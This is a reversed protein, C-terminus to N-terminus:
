IEEKVPGGRNENGATKWGFINQTLNSSVAESESLWRNTDYNLFGYTDSNYRISDTNWHGSGRDGFGFYLSPASPNSRTLPGVYIYDITFTCKQTGTISVQAKTLLEETNCVTPNLPITFIRYTGDAYASFPYNTTGYVTDGDGKLAITMTDNEANAGSNKVVKMRLRLFDTEGPDFALSSSTGATLSVLRDNGNDTLVIAGSTTDKNCSETTWTNIDAYNICNKGYVPYTYQLKAVDNNNFDFFLHNVQEAGPNVHQSVRDLLHEPGIFIYDITFEAGTTAHNPGQINYITPHIWQLNTKSEIWHKKWYPADLPFTITHFGSGIYSEDLNAKGCINGMSYELGIGLTENPVVTGNEIKFRIQCYDNRTPTYSIPYNYVGDENGFTGAHIYYYNKDHDEPINDDNLQDEFYAYGNNPDNELGKVISIGGSKSAQVWTNGSDLNRYNAGYISSSYRFQDATTNDFGIFLYNGYVDDEMGMKPGVYIYDITIAANVDAGKINQFHFGINRILHSQLFKADAPIPITVTQYKGMMAPDLEVANMTDDYHYTAAATNPAQYWAIFQILPTKGSLISCHEMKFRMQVYLDDSAYMALGSAPGSAAPWSGNDNGTTAIYAGDTATTSVPFTAVGATNNISVTGSRTAWHSRDFDFHNRYSPNDRYRREYGEGDFDVFFAEAPIYERAIDTLYVTGNLRQYDQNPDAAATGDTVEEWPKAQKAPDTDSDVQTMTFINSDPAFDTEYYMVHAPTFTIEAVVYSYAGVGNESCYFDHLEVVAYVRETQTLFQTPQYSLATADMTFTGQNGNFTTVEPASQLGAPREKLLMGHYVDNMPSDALFGVLDGVRAFSGDEFHILDPIEILPVSVAKGYDLVVELKRVQPLSSNEPVRLHCQAEGIIPYVTNEGQPVYYCLSHVTNTYNLDEVVTRRLFGYVMMQCGVPIGRALLTKLQDEDQMKVFYSGTFPSTGQDLIELLQHYSIEQPAATTVTGETHSRYYVRINNITTEIGNNKRFDNDKDCLTLNDPSINVGLSDDRFSANILTTDKDNLIGFGYAVVEGVNVTQHDEIPQGLGTTQNVLDEGDNTHAYQVKSTKGDRSVIQINTEFRLNAKSPNREAYFMDFNYCQGDVLGLTDAVANLELSREMRNHAAGMDLAITDNIFFYVDDDGRFTFTQNEEKSYIFAGRAHLTFLFNSDYADYGAMVTSYGGFDTDYKGGMIEPTEFGLGDIPAFCPHSSDTKGPQAGDSNLIYKGSYGMEKEADLLYNGSDPDKYLRMVERSEVPMNYCYQGDLLDGEPAESWMYHLIYYALDFATTVESWLLHDGNKGTVNGSSDVLKGQTDDWTGLELNGAAKMEFFKRNWGPAKADFSNITHVLIGKAVYAITKEEYVPKGGVLKPKTLGVRIHDNNEGSLLNKLPPDLYGPLEPIQCFVKYKSTGEIFDRYDYRLSFGGMNQFLMNDARFDLIEVPIDIYERESGLLTKYGLLANTQRDLEEQYHDEISLADEAKKPFGNRITFLEVSASLEELFEGYLEEPYAGPDDLLYTVEEIAGHLAETSWLAYLNMRALQDDSSPSHVSENSWRFCRNVTDFVLFYDQGSVQYRIHFAWNSRADLCFSMAKNSNKRGDLVAEGDDTIGLQKDKNAGMLLFYQSAADGEGYSVLHIAKNPDAGSLIALTPNQLDMGNIAPITGNTTDVSGDFLFFGDDNATPSTKLVLYYAGRLGNMLPRNASLLSLNIQGNWNGWDAMAAIKASLEQARSALAEAQRVPALERTEAELARTPVMGALLGILLMLSVLRTIQKKM